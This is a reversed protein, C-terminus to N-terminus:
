PVVRAADPAAHDHQPQGGPDARVRHHHNRNGPDTYGSTGTQPIVSDSYSVTITTPPGPLLANIRALARAVVQPLGPGAKELAQASFTVTFRHRAM